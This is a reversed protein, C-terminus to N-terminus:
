IGNSTSLLYDGQLNYILKNTYAINLHTTPTNM